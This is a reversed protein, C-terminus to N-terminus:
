ISNTVAGLVERAEKQARSSWNLMEKIVISEKNTSENNKVNSSISDEEFRWKLLAINELVRGEISLFTVITEVLLYM